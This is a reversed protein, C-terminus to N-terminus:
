NMMTDPVRILFDPEYDQQRDTVILRNWYFEWKGDLIMTRVPSNMTVNMSGDVAEPAGTLDHYFLTYFVPLHTFLVAFILGLVLSAKTHRSENKM